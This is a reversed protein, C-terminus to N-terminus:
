GLRACFVSMADPRNRGCSVCRTAIVQVPDGGLSDSMMLQKGKLLNGKQLAAMTTADSIVPSLSM